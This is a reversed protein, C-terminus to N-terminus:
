MTKKNIFKYETYQFRLHEWFIKSCVEICKKRNHEDEINSIVKLKDIAIYNYEKWYHMNNWKMSIIGKM